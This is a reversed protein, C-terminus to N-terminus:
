PAAKGWVEVEVYHNASNASNGRSYFRVYRGAVAKIPLIRGKNTELYAKDKGLGLGSSNDDDNNFVTTVGSIFDPDDSIQVVVDIYAREQSHFHWLAIAAISAKQELDIQVWQKGDGLEVFYGDDSQKDGDVIQELMGAIPFSDSATVPKNLALNASGEPVMVPPRNAEAATELNPAKVPVPTGSRKPKPLETKLPVLTEEATLSGAAAVLVALALFAPLRM